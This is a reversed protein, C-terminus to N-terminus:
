SILRRALWTGAAASYDFFRPDADPGRGMSTIRIGASQLMAAPDDHEIPLVRHRREPSREASRLGIDVLEAETGIPVPVSAECCLSLVTRTHHSIGHHRTRADASSARVCIAVDAGLQRAGDIIGAAELASTGLSSGTGVVGPGMAVVVADANFTRKAVRLAGLAHVAEGDGGFAHGATVCAALLEKERLDHVLDSLALPLAAGDTMVYVLRRPQQGRQGLNGLGSGLRALEHAFAVAVMGMQSHLTCVVVPLGDLVDLEDGIRGLDDDTRDPEHEEASGTNAQLSTYRMKMIHGGGPTVHARKSLNWHVVHWGGTGLGLEVATTNCVVQDGVAVTGILETIVYAAAEDSADDLRVSIRQLGARESRIATVVGSRFSTM